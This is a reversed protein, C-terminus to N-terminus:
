EIQDTTNEAPTDSNQLRILEGLKAVLTSRPLTLDIGTQTARAALDGRAHPYYGIVKCGSAKLQPIMDIFETLDIVALRAQRATKLLAQPTSAFESKEAFAKAAEMLKARFFIDSTGILIM